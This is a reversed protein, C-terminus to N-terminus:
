LFVRSDVIAKKRRIRTLNRTVKGSSFHNHKVKYLTRRLRLPELGQEQEEIAGFSSCFKYGEYIDSSGIEECLPTLLNTKQENSYSIAIPLGFLQKNKANTREKM